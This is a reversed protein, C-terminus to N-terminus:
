PVPPSNATATAATRRPSGSGIGARDRRLATRGARRRRDRSRRSRTGAAGGGRRGTRADVRHGAGLTDGIEEGPIGGARGASRRRRSRGAVPRQRRAPEVREPGADDARGRRRGPRAPAAADAGDPECRDSRGTSQGSARDATRRTGVVRGLGQADRGGAPGAASQEQHQEHQERQGRDARPTSRSARRGSRGAGAVRGAGRRRRRHVATARDAPLQRRCRGDGEPVPM